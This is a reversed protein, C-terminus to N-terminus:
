LSAFLARTAQRYSRLHDRRIYLHRLRERYEGGPQGQWVLSALPVNLQMELHESPTSPSAQLRSVWCSRFSSLRCSNRSRSASGGPLSLFFTRTLLHEAACSSRPWCSPLAFGWLRDGIEAPHMEASQLRGGIFYHGGSSNIPRGGACGHVCGRRGCGAWGYVAFGHATRRAGSM